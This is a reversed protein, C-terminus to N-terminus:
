IAAAVKIRSFGGLKDLVLCLNFGYVLQERKSQQRLDMNINLFFFFFSQLFLTAGKTWGGGGRSDTANASRTKAERWDFYQTVPGLPAPSNM